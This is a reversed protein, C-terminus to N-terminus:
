ELMAWLADYHGSYSVSTYSSLEVVISPIGANRFTWDEYGGTVNYDFNSSSTNTGDRYGVLSAYKSAYGASYGGPDGIALSGVAHFSLLLRPQYSTTLKALAAAEPESLPSEGGGAAHTGDTDKISKTWNDTPFNRNLNVGRSNTRTGAALGDPNIGPVVVIRKGAYRAPNRDLEGMWAKMLSTSSPESGHIGGVYMTVPGGSGYIFASLPRGKLSTGYTTTQYCITRGNFNWNQSSPIDFESLAGQKVTIMFPQCLPLSALQVVIQTDSRKQVSAQGGSVAIFPTIDKTKSLPQDFTLIIAASQSVGTAGVSVSAVKPGGSTTFAAVYPEILTSGDTAEISEIRLEHSKERALEAALTVTLANGDISQTVDVPKGDSMLTVKAAAIPKDTTVSFTKPRSYLVQGQTVDSRTVAVARLTTFSGSGITKKNSGEFSRVLGYEYPQGQALKLSPVDCEITSRQSTCDAVQDGIKLQYDHLSDTTSMGVKLSKSVPVEPKISDLRPSPASPVTVSYLTRFLPGNFPATGIIRSGPQPSMKTDFCTKFSALKVTGVNWVDQFSIDYAQDNGSQLQPLVTFQSHCTKSAYSFAVQKPILFIIAYLALVLGVGLYAYYKKPVSRLFRVSKQMNLPLTM